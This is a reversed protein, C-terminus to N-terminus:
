FAHAGHAGFTMVYHISFINDTKDQYRQQTYQGRIVGFHSNHWALAADLETIEEDHFHGHAHDGHSHVGHAIFHDFQSARLSVSWNPTFQYVAAAYYGDISDRAGELESFPSEYLDDLKLYEATFRFNQYKYNGEPAWKWTFDIGYLNRGTFSPGHSHDHSGHDHGGHDGHRTHAHHDHGAHDHDDKFQMYGNGNRLYSLGLMWSHSENIDMGTKIKATAIGVTGPNDFGADMKKGALAEGSLELYFDTPFLISGQVGDDFYHGGLLARYVAPRETFADEHMHKGNLYGFNSLFRGAKIKASWPLSTTEIFAEELELETKGHHSHLVAMLVGRFKDDINASFALESHGLGFGEERESFAREGDQYFGDLVVGIEPNSISPIETAFVQSISLGLLTASTLLYKM